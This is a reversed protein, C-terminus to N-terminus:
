RHALNLHIVWSHVKWPKIEHKKLTTYLFMRFIILM